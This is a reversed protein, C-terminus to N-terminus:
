LYELSLTHLFETAQDGQTLSFRVRYICVYGSLFGRGGNGMVSVDLDRQHRSAVEAVWHRGSAVSRRPRTLGLSARSGYMQCLRVGLWRTAQKNFPASNSGVTVSATPASKKRCFIAAETKGHDFAGGNQAAWDISATAAESLKAAVAEEDKGEAWWGIDNVFSLGSVGQVSREVDDFISGNRYGGSVDSAYVFVSLRRRQIHM